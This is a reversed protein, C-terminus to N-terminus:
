FNAFNKFIGSNGFLFLKTTYNKGKKGEYLKLTTSLVNIKYLYLPLGFIKATDNCFKDTMLM